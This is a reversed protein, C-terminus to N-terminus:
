IPFSNQPFHLQCRVPFLAQIQLMEQFRSYFFWMQQSTIAYHISTHIRIGLALCLTDSYLWISGRRWSVVTDIELNYYFNFCAHLAGVVTIKHHPEQDHVHFFERLHVCVCFACEDELVIMQLKSIIFISAKHQKNAPTPPPPPWLDESFAIHWIFSENMWWSYKKERPEIWVCARSFLRVPIQMVRLLVVKSFNGM